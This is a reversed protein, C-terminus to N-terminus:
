VIIPSRTWTMKTRRLEVAPGGAARKKKKKVRFEILYGAADALQFIEPLRQSNRNEELLRVVQSPSKRLADALVQASFKHEGFTGKLVRELQNLPGWDYTADCHYLVFDSSFDTKQGDELTLFVGQGEAEQDIVVKAVRNRSGVHLGELASFPLLYNSRKKGERLRVEFAKKRYNPKIQEFQPDIM